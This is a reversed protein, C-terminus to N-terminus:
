QAEEGAAMVYGLFVNEGQAGEFSYKDNIVIKPVGMVAYKQAQEMFESAEIMSSRIFKSEIAFQHATRVAKPCWPCTPTVFVKIDVHKNLKKLALKTPEALTTSNKSADIIDGILSAFEHGAPIGKYIIGYVRKGGIVTSPAADVGLFKAESANKKMDYVKLKLREDIACIENLLQLNQECYECDEKSDGFYFISVEGQLEKSFTEKLVAIDSEKLIDMINGNLM